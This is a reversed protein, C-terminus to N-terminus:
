KNNLNKYEEKNMKKNLEKNKNKYVEKNMLNIKYNLKM